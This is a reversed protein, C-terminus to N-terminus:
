GNDTIKRCNYPLISYLTNLAIETTLVSITPFFPEKLALIQQQTSHRLKQRATQPILLLRAAAM